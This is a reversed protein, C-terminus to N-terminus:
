ENARTDSELPHFQDLTESLRNLNLHTYIETTNLNSHGLMEQVQRISAGGELLHTAFSHRFSHPSLEKSIGAILAAQRVMKFVSQRSLAKGQYSVFVRESDRLAIDMTARESLWEEVRRMAEENIPVWRQKGGKGEAVRVLEEKFFLDSLRLSTLESVRLGCGYLLEVIARNRVAQTGTHSTADIIAEVEKVTLVDPLYRGTKPGEIGETPDESIQNDVLLLHFFSRLSSLRRSQSTASYTTGLREDAVRDTLDLIYSRIIESTVKEPAVTPHHETLFRVFDALDSTYAEATNRSLARELRLHRCFKQLCEQWRNEMQSM